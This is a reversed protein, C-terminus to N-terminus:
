SLQERLARDEEELYEILDQEHRKVGGALTLM